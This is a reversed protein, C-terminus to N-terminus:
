TKLVRYVTARSVGLRAAIEGATHAGSAYLARALDADSRSLSRPRGGRATRGEPATRPAPEPGPGPEPGPEREASPAADPLLRWAGTLLHERLVDDSLDPMLAIPDTIASVAQALAIREAVGAGPGAGAGIGEEMTRLLRDYSGSPATALDRFLTALTGRYRLFVDLWGTILTARVAAIGRSDRQAVAEALVAELEDTVPDLLSGLIAAKSDFHYYLAPKTIGVRDAVEQLATAHYGREVFLREAARLIRERTGTGQDTGPM